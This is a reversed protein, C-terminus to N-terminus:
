RFLYSITIGDDSISEVVFIIFHGEMGERAKSVYASGEQLKFSRRTAYGIPPISAQDITKDGLAVIGRQGNHCACIYGQAIFSGDQGPYITYEFDGLSLNNLTLGMAGLFSGRGDLKITGSSEEPLEALEIDYTTETNERAFVREGAAQAYGTLNYSFSLYGEKKVLLKWANGVYVELRYAGNEDSETEFSGPWLQINAGPIAEAGLFTRVQGKLVGKQKPVLQVTRGSPSVSLVSWARDIGILLADRVQQVEGNSGQSIVGNGDVDQLVMTERTDFTGRGSQDGILFTEGTEPIQGVRLTRIYLDSNFRPPGSPTPTTAVGGVDSPTVTAPIMPISGSVNILFAIPASGDSYDMTVTIIDSQAYRRFSRQQASALSGETNIGFYATGILQEIQSTIDLMVAIKGDVGISLLGYYATGQAEPADTIGEPKSTSLATNTPVLHVDLVFGAANKWTTDTTTIVTM